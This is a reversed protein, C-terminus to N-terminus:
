VRKDNGVATRASHSSLEWEAMVAIPVVHACFYTYLLIVEVFDGNHPMAVILALRVLRPPEGAETM